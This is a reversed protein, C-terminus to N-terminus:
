RARLRIVNAPLQDVAPPPSVLSEIRSAWLDLAERKEDLYAYRNYVGEVGGIVHGLVREAIDPAIKMEAMGTRLTRRLDHLTWPEMVPRGDENRAKAIAADLREKCKGYGQFHTDKRTAFVFEDSLRDVGGLITRALQTIPVLHVIGTKYREPPITWTGAALDLESWKMAGVEERRQGTVILMKVVWPFPGAQQDCAYWVDRLEDATLIRARPVRRLTGTRKRGRSPSALLNAELEGRDIAWNIVRIAIERVKHAMQVKDAVILPDLIATLDKRRLESAPRDRWHPQLSRNIIQELEWGRRLSSCEAKIYRSALDGWTGPRFGNEAEYADAQVAAQAAEDRLNAPDVGREVADLAKGALTRADGLSIAPFHGLNLRRQKGGFRYFIFWTKNTAGVRLGFGPLTADFLELRGGAPPKANEVSKATLKVKPM